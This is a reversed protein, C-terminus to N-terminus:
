RADGGEADRRTDQAIFRMIETLADSMSACRALRTSGKNIVADGLPDDADSADILSIRVSPSFVMPSSEDEQRQVISAGYTKNGNILQRELEWRAIRPLRDTVAYELRFDDRTLRAM